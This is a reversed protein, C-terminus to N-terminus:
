NAACNFGPAFGDGLFSNGCTASVKVASTTPDGGASPSLNAFQEANGGGAGPALNAMAQANTGGAAPALTAFYNAVQTSTTLPASKSLLSLNISKTDFPVARETNNGALTRGSYSFLSKRYIGRRDRELDDFATGTFQNIAADAPTTITPGVVVPFSRYFVDGLTADNAVDVTRADAEALQSVTFDQARVGAFIQQSADLVQGFMAKNQLIFYHTVNDFTSGNGAFQMDSGIGDLQIATDGGTFHSDQVTTGSAGNRIRLGTANAPITFTENTLSASLGHNVDVGLLNGSFINGSLSAFDSDAVSIGVTNDELINNSLVAHDSATTLQIGTTNTTFRNTDLTINTSQAADIGTATHIITNRAITANNSDNLAIGTTLSDFISFFIQANDSQNVRIGVGNGANYFANNLMTLTGTANNLVIGNATTTFDNSEADFGNIGQADIGTLGNHFSNELVFGNSSGNYFGLQTDGGTFNVGNVTLHNSGYAQIGDTGDALSIQGGRITTNNASNVRVATGTGANPIAGATVLDITNNVLGSGTSNVLKIGTQDANGTIKNAFLATNTNNDLQIGTNAGTVNTSLVLGNAVDTLHVGTQANNAKITVDQLAIGDLPVFVETFAIVDSASLGSGDIITSATGKGLLSLTKTINATQHFTGTGLQVIAGGGGTIGVADSVNQISGEVGNAINQNVRISGASGTANNLTNGYNSYFIGGQLVKLDGNQATLSTGNLLNVDNAINLTLNNGAKIYSKQYLFNPSSGANFSDANITINGADAVIPTAYYASNLNFAHGATINIDGQSSYIEGRGANLTTINFDNGATLTISGANTSISSNGCCGGLVLMNGVTISVNGGTSSTSKINGNMDINNNAFISLSGTGSWIVDNVFVINGQYNGLTGTTVTVDTGSDLAAALTNTNVFPFFNGNPAGSTPQYVPGNTVNQTQVNNDGIILDRPDLLWSGARGLAATADVQGSVNLYAGSTEIRGGNGGNAGGKAFITGNFDTLGTSWLVAEGGNGTDLASVDILTASDASVGSSQALGAGGQYNGGIHIQGGGIAGSADIQAGAVTITEGTVTVNGGKQGDAKGSVNVRGAVRVRGASGGDLVITGGEMHAASAELVGTNNVVNTVINKAANATLLITGGQAKITGNNEVASDMSHGNQDKGAASTKGLAFSYLNDGYMDIAVTEGAGLMVTGYKAQIVGDNRVSPAVLAVLGGDTATIHGQNVISADAKGPQSFNMRGALFDNSKIDATSAIMGSVDVTSGAGFFVGNPNVLVLKGNASLKGLIQSPAGGGIRNLTVSSSNPQIFRTSEGSLIDFGQWNVIGRDTTQTIVLNARDPQNITIAGSEVQGGTPLAYAQTGGTIALMLGALGLRGYLASTILLSSPRM